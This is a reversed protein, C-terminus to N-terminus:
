TFSVKQLELIINYALVGTTWGLTTLYIDGTNGVGANNTMGGFSCADVEDFGTLAAFRVPTTADWDLTVILGPSVLHSIKLVKVRTPVRGPVPQSLASVQVKRTRAENSTDLTGTLLIVTNKPGDIITQSTFVNPM